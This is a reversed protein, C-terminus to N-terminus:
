TKLKIELDNLIKKLGNKELLAFRDALELNYEAVRRYTVDKRWIPVILKKGTVRERTRLSIFEDRPWSSNNIFKKSIVVIGFKSKRLGEDIKETLSDGAKLVFKDYWVKMKKRKLAKALPEVFHKKDNSDHCIFYDYEKFDELLNVTTISKKYDSKSEEFLDSIDKYGEDESPTYIERIDLMVKDNPRCKVLLKMIDYLNCLDPHESISYEIRGEIPLEEDDKTLKDIGTLRFKKLTRPSVEIIEAIKKELKEINIGYEKIRDIAKKATTEFFTIGNYEDPSFPMLFTFPIDWSSLIHPFGSITLVAHNAM